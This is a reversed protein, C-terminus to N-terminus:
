VVLIAYYIEYIALLIEHFYHQFESFLLVQKILSIFNKVFEAIEIFYTDIFTKNQEDIDVEVATILTNLRVNIKKNLKKLENILENIKVTVKLM